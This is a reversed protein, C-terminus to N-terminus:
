RGCLSAAYNGRGSLPSPYPSPLRLAEVILATAAREDSLVLEDRIRLVRWGLKNLTSTREADYEAQDALDHSSGDIEVILKAEM